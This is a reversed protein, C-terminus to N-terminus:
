YSYWFSGPIGLLICLGETHIGPIVSFYFLLILLFLYKSLQVILHTLKDGVRSRAPFTSVEWYGHRLLLKTKQTRHVKM